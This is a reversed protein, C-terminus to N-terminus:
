STAPDDRKVRSLQETQYSGNEPVTSRLQIHMEHYNAAHDDNKMIAIMVVMVMMVMMVMIVLRFGCVSLVAAIAGVLVAGGPTLMM